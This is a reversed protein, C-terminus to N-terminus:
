NLLKMQSIIEKYEIDNFFKRNDSAEQTWGYQIAFNPVIHRHFHDLSKGTIWFTEWQRIFIVLEGHKDQLIKERKILLTQVDELEQSSLESIYKRHNKTCILLHDETYPARAPLVFATDNEDIAFKIEECFPCVKQQKMNNIHNIYAM